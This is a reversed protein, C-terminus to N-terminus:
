SLQNDAHRLLLFSWRTRLAFMTSRAQL